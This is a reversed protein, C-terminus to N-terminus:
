GDLTGIPVAVQTLGCARVHAVLRHLGALRAPDLQDPSMARLACSGAATEVKFVCAGSFGRFCQPRQAPDAAYIAPYRGLLTRLDPDPNIRCAMGHNYSSSQILPHMRAPGARPGDNVDAAM